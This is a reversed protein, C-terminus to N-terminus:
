SFITALQFDSYRPYPIYPGASLKEHVRPTQWSTAIRAISNDVQSLHFRLCLKRLFKGSLASPSDLIIKAMANAPQEPKLLKAQKPLTYSKAADAEQMIGSQKERVERPVQTDVVGPQISISTVNPEEM